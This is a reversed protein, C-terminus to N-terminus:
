QRDPTTLPEQPPQDILKATIDASERQLKEFQDMATKSEAQRGLKRLCLSLVYYYEALQPDLDIAKMVADAEKQWEGQIRYAKAMQFYAQDSKPNVEIAKRTYVLANAPDERRNYYSGLYVYPWESKRNQEEDLKIATLYDKVATSNDGLIEMTLGLNNYAKMYSADLQIATEYEAKALPYVGRTYYNRALFYHIEASGPELRAAERFETEALDPRSVITCDLGLIKHAEANNVNLQLSKALEKISGGIEHTRFLVFGLDYHARASKPYAKLYEHLPTLAEEFQNEAIQKEIPQLGAEPDLVSIAQGQPTTARLPLSSLSWPVFAALCTALAVCLVIGPRVPNSRLERKRARMWKVKGLRRLEVQRKM